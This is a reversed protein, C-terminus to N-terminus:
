TSSRKVTTNGDQEIEELRYFHPQPRQTDEKKMHESLEEVTKFERSQNYTYESCTRMTHGIKMNPGFFHGYLRQEWTNPGEPPIDTSAIRTGDDPGGVVEVILRKRM